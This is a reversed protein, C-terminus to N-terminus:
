YEGIENIFSHIKLRRRLQLHDIVREILCARSRLSKAFNFRMPHKGFMEILM